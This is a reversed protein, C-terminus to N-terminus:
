EARLVLAPDVRSAHRAPFYAAMLAATIVIVVAAALTLPDRTDLGTLQTEAVRRLWYVGIVGLIVGSAVPTVAQRVVLRVLSPGTAGLAM